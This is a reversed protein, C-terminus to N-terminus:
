LRSVGLALGPGRSLHRARGTNVCLDKDLAIAGITCMLASAQWQGGDWAVVAGGRGGGLSEGTSACRYAVPTTLQGCARACVCVRECVRDRLSVCACARMRERRVCM